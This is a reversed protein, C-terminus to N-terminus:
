NEKFEVDMLEYGNPIENGVTVADYAWAGVFEACVDSFYDGGGMGNSTACLLPLPHIKYGNEDYDPIKVVQKKTHNIVYPFYIYENVKYVDTGECLKYPPNENVSVLSKINDPWDKPKDVSCSNTYTKGSVATGDDNLGPEYDGAWAVLHSGNKNLKYLIQEFLNLAHVGVYSTEMLKAGCLFDIWRLSINVSKNKKDILCPKFYQGM